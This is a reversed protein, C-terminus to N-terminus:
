LMGYSSLTKRLKAEGAADLATMATAVARIAALLKMAGQDSDSPVANRGSRDRSLCDLLCRGSGINLTTGYIWLFLMNGFLHLFGAHLFLSTFCRGCRAVGSSLWAYVRLSRVGLHEAPHTTAAGHVAPHDRSM